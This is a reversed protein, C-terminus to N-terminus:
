ACRPEFVGDDRMDVVVRLALADAHFETVANDVGVAIIALGERQDPRVLRLGPPSNSCSKRKVNSAAPLTVWMSSRAIGKCNKLLWITVPVVCTGSRRWRGAPRLRPCPSCHRATM